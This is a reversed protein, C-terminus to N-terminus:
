LMYRVTPRTGQIANEFEMAREVATKKSLFGRIDLILIDRGESSMYIIKDSVMVKIIDMSNNKM